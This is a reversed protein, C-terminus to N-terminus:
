DNQEDKYVLIQGKLFAGLWYYVEKYDKAQLVKYLFSGKNTYEGPCAEIDKGLYYYGDKLYVVHGGISLKGTNKDRSFGYLGIQRTTPEKGSTLASARLTAYETCDTCDEDGDGDCNEVHLYNLHEIAGAIIEDANM